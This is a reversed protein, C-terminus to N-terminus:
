QKNQSETYQIANKNNKQNNKKQHYPSGRSRCTSVCAKGVRREESRPASPRFVARLLFFAQSPLTEVAVLLWAIARGGKSLVGDRSPGRTFSIIVEGWTRRTSSFPSCTPTTDVASARRLASLAPSSRM